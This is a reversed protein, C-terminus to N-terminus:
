QINRPGSDIRRQEVEQIEQAVQAGVLIMVPLFMGNFGDIFSLSVCYGLIGTEVGILLNRLEGDGAGRPKYKRVNAAKFFFGLILSLYPITIFLGGEALMQCFWTSHGVRFEQFSYDLLDPDFRGDLDSRYSQKAAPFSLLGSGFIPNDLFVLWGANWLVLRSASSYDRIDESATISAMRDVYAKGLFPSVAILLVITYTMLTKRRPTRWILYLLSMIVGLFGGRSSTLIIFLTLIGTCGLGLLKEKKTTATLSKNLAVGWFLVGLAAVENSDGFEIGELRENGRFGQDCGWLALFTTAYLLTNVALKARDRGHVLGLILWSVLVLKFFNGAFEWARFHLPHESLSISIVAALWIWVLLWLEKRKLSVLISNGKVFFGLLAAGISVKYILVGTDGGWFFMEPKVINSCLYILLGYIPQIFGVIVISPLCAYFIFERM